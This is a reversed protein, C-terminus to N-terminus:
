ISIDTKLQEIAAGANLIGGSKVVNKLGGRKTASSVIINKVEPATIDSDVLFLTAAVGSVHPVAISTGTYYAYNNDASTSLVNVGPAAIDVTQKGVNSKKYIRGDFGINAVSISNILM